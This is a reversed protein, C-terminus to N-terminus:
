MQALEPCSISDPLVSREALMDALTSVGTIRSIMTTCLLANGAATEFM